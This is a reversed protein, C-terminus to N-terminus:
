STQRRGSAQQSQPNLDWRPCPHRNHTNHTTLYLDRRRVSWEDLNHRGVTIGRQTHDLFRLFSSAMARTPGCRWLPPSIGCDRFEMTALIWSAIETIFYGESVEICFQVSLHNMAKSFPHDFYVKPSFVDSSNLIFYVSVNMWENMWENTNLRLSRAPLFWFGTMHGTHSQCM